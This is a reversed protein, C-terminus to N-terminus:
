LIFFAEGRPTFLKKRNVAHHRHIYRGLFAWFFWAVGGLTKQEHLCISKHHCFKEFHERPIMLLMQFCVNPQNGFNLKQRFHKKQRAWTTINTKGIEVNAESSQQKADRKKCNIQSIVLKQLSNDIPNAATERAACEACGSLEIGLKPSSPEPRNYTNRYHSSEWNWAESSNVWQM